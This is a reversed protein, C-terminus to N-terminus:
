VPFPGSGEKVLCIGPAPARGGAGLRQEPGRAAKLKGPLEFLRTRAVGCQCGFVPIAVPIWLGDKPEDLHVHTPIVPLGGLPQEPFKQPLYWM